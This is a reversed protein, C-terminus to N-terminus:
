DDRAEYYADVVVGRLADALTGGTPVQGYLWERVEVSLGDLMPALGGLAPRDHDYKAARRPVFRPLLGKRRAIYLWRGATQRDVGLLAAAEENTDVVGYVEVVRDWPIAVDPAAELLGNAVAYKRRYGVASASMGLRLAAGRDSYGDRLLALTEEFRTPASM